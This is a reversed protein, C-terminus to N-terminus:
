LTTFMASNTFMQLIVLCEQRPRAGCWSWRSFRVEADPFGYIAAINPHNLSALLKAEREFRARRERDGSLAAPRVKIAVERDLTADVARWVEGMGGEGIKDILRFHGLSQGSELTM